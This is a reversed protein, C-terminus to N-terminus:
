LGLAKLVELTGEPLHGLTTDCADSRPTSILGGSDWDWAVEVLDLKGVVALFCSPSAM